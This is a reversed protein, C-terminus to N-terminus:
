SISGLIFIGNKDLISGIAYSKLLKSHINKYTSSLSVIDFGEVKGNVFVLIGKQSPLCPLAKLYNEIDEKKSEFIDKM